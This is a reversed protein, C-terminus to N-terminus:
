KQKKRERFHIWTFIIGFIISLRFATPWDFIGESHVVFSYIFTVLSSVIFTVICTVLFDKALEAIKMDGRKM